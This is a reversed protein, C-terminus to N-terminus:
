RAKKTAQFDRTQKIATPRGLQQSSSSTTHNSRGRKQLNGPYSVNMLIPSFNPNVLFPYNLTSLPFFNKTPPVDQPQHRAACFAGSLCQLSGIPHFPEPPRVHCILLPNPKPPQQSAISSEETTINAKKSKKKQSAQVTVAKM